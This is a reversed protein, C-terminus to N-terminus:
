AATAKLRLALADSAYLALSCGIPYLLENLSMAVVKVIPLAPSTAYINYGVFVGGFILATALGTLVYVRMDAWEQKTYWGAIAGLTAFELGKILALIMPSPVSEMVPDAPADLASGVAKHISKALVFALPAAVIGAIGGMAERLVKATATGIALAACVMLSWSVKQAADAAAVSAPPLSGKGFLNVLLFVIELVVGLAISMWVIHLIRTMVANGGGEEAPAELKAAALDSAM